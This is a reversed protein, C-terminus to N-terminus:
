RVERVPGLWRSFCQLGWQRKRYFSGEKLGQTRNNTALLRCVIRLMSTQLARANIFVTAVKSFNLDIPFIGMEYFLNVLKTLLESVNRYSRKVSPLEVASLFIVDAFSLERMGTVERTVECCRSSHQRLLTNVALETLRRALNM